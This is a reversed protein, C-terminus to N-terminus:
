APPAQLRAKLTRSAQILGGIAALLFASRSPMVVAGSAGNAMMVGSLATGATIVFDTVADTLLVLLGLRSM